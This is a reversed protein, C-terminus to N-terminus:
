GRLGRTWPGTSRAPHADRREPPASDDLSLVEQIELSTFPAPEAPAPPPVARPRRNADVLMRRAAKPARPTPPAAEAAQITEADVPMMARPQVGTDLDVVRGRVERLMREREPSAPLRELHDLLERLRKLRDQSSM